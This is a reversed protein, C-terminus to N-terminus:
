EPLNFGKGWEHIEQIGTICEWPITILSLIGGNESLTTSLNIGKVSSNVFFGLSTVEEVHVPPNSEYMWGASQTSDVWFVRLADGREFKQQKM